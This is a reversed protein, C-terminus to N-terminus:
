WNKSPQLKRHGIRVAFGFIFLLKCKIGKLSFIPGLFENKLCKWYDHLAVFTACFSGLTGIFGLFM